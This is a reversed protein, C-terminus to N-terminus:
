SDAPSLPWLPCCRFLRCNNVASWLVAIVAHPRGVACEYPIRRKAHGWTKVPRPKGFMQDPAFCIRTLSGADAFLQRCVLACFVHM